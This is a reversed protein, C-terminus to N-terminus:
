APQPSMLLVVHLLRLRGLLMALQLPEGPRPAALLADVARWVRRLAARFPREPEADVEVPEEQHAVVRFHRTARRDQAAVADDTPIRLRPRVREVPEVREPARRARRPAAAPLLVGERELVAVRRAPPRAEVHVAVVHHEADLHVGLLLAPEEDDLPAVAADLPGLPRPLRLRLAVTNRCRSRVTECGRSCM